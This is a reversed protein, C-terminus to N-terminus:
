IRMHMIQFSRRQISDSILSMISLGACRQSARSEEPRVRMAHDLKALTLAENCWYMGGREAAEIEEVEEVIVGGAAVAELSVSKGGACGRCCCCSYYGKHRVARSFFVLQM